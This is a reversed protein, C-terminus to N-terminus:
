CRALQDQTTPSPTHSGPRHPRSIFPTNRDGRPSGGMKKEGAGARWHNAGSWLLCGHPARDDVDQGIDEHNREEVNREQDAPSITAGTALGTPNLIFLLLHIHVNTPASLRAYENTINLLHSVRKYYDRLNRPSQCAHPACGALDGAPSLRYRLAPRCSDLLGLGLPHSLVPPLVVGSHRSVIGGTVGRVDPVVDTWPHM